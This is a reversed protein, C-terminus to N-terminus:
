NGTIEPSLVGNGGMNRHLGCADILKKGEPNDCDVQCAYGRPDGNVFFGPPLTGLIDKVMSTVLDKVWEWDTIDIAGNCYAVSRDSALREAKWLAVSIRKGDIKNTETPKGIFEQRIVCKPCTTNTSMNGCKPCEKLNALYAALRECTSYHALLQQARRERKNLKANLTTMLNLLTFQWWPSDSQNHFAAPTKRAVASPRKGTCGLETITGLNMASIPIAEM